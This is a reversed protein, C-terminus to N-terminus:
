AVRNLGELIENGYKEVAQAMLNIFVDYKQREKANIRKSHEESRENDDPVPQQVSPPIRKDITNEM